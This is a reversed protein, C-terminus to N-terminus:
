QADVQGFSLMKPNFPASRFPSDTAWPHTTRKSGSAGPVCVISIWMSPLYKRLGTLEVMVVVIMTWYVNRSYPTASGTTPNAAGQYGLSM